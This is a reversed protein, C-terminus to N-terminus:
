AEVRARRVYAAVDGVTQLGELDEDPIAVGFADETAVAVDILALSDVGLDDRLRKDPTVKARDVKANEALIRALTAEIDDHQM